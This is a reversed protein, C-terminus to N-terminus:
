WRGPRRQARHRETRLPEILDFHLAPQRGAFRHDQVRRLRDLAAAVHADPSGLAHQDLQLVDPLLVLAVRDFNRHEVAHRHRDASPSKRANIPGDPEPLDVSSFRSAPM